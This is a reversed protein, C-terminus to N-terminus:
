FSLNAVLRTHGQQYEKTASYRDVHFLRFWLGKVSPVAYHLVYDHVRTLERRVGAPTNTNPTWTQVDSDYGAHNYIFKLGPVFSQLNYELGLKYATTDARFENRSFITSTFGPDGGWTNIVHGDENKNFAAELTLDGIEAKAKAGWFLADISGDASIKTTYTRATPGTGYITLRTANLDGRLAAGGFGNQFDGVDDQKLAQAALTVKAGGVDMKYETDAYITNYMEHAYYDWVRAKFDGSKYDIGLSTVGASDVRQTGNANRGFMALGMDQFQEKGWFRHLGGETTGATIGVGTTIGYIEDGILNRETLSRTGYQMKTIHAATITTNPLEKITAVTGEFLNPVFTVPSETMPTKFEQRGYTIDTNSLHYNAYAEGLTSYSGFNNGLIGGALEQTAIKERSTLSTDHVTYLAAGFRLGHLAGTQYKLKGAVVTGTYAIGPQTLGEVIHHLRVFGGAKGEKLMESLDEAGMLQSALVTSLALIATKKMM